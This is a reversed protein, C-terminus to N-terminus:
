LFRSVVAIVLFGSVGPGECNSPISFYVRLSPLSRILRSVRTKECILDLTGFVCFAVKNWVIKEMLHALPRVDVIQDDADKM